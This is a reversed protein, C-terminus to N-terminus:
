ISELREVGTLGMCTLELYINVVINDKVVISHIGCVIQLYIASNTLLLFFKQTHM